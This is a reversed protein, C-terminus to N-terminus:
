QNDSGNDYTTIEGLIQKTTIQKIMLSDSDIWVYSEPDLAIDLYLTDDSLADIGKDALALPDNKLDPNNALLEGVAEITGYYEVAVDFITQNRKILQNM